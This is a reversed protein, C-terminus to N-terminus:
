GGPRPHPGGARRQGRGRRAAEVVAEDTPEGPIEGPVVPVGVRAALTRAATKSGMQDIADAPPGVFVLGARECARAFAARESLFGYGPHVAEAGATQAAHVVREVDPYRQRATRGGLPVVRDALRTHLSERDVDSCIAVSRIGLERCARIVRVAIEGRNAVLLSKFRRAGVPM